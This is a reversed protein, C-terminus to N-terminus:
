RTTGSDALTASLFPLLLYCYCIFLRLFDVWSTLQSDRRERERDTYKMIAFLPLPLFLYGFSLSFISSFLTSYTLAHIYALLCFGSTFDIKSNSIVFGELDVVTNYHNILVKKSDKIWSCLVYISIRSDSCEESDWALFFPIINGKRAWWKKIRESDMKPRLEQIGNRNMNIDM